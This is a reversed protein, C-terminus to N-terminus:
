SAAAADSTLLMCKSKSVRAIIEGAAIHRKAAVCPRSGKCDMGLAVPADIACAV